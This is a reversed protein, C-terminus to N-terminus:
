RTPGREARNLEPPNSRPDQSPAPPNPEQPLAPVPSRRGPRSLTAGLAALALASPHLFRQRPSRSPRESMGSESALPESLLTESLLTESLPPKSM